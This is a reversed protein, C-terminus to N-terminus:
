SVTLPHLHPSPVLPSHYKNYHEAVDAVTATMCFLSGLCFSFRHVSTYHSEHAQLAEMYSAITRLGCVRGPSHQLLWRVRFANRGSRSLFASLSHAPIIFVGSCCAPESSVAGMDVSSLEYFMCHSPSPRMYLVPMKTCGAVFVCAVCLSLSCFCMISKLSDLSELVTHTKVGPISLEEVRFIYM